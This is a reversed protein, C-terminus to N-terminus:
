REKIRGPKGPLGAQNDLVPIARVPMMPRNFSPFAEFPLVGALALPMDMRIQIPM